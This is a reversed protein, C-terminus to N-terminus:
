PQLGVVEVDTKSFDNGKFLLPEETYKSLAYSFCDGFNLSAPHRGKGYTRFAIRAIEAQEATFAVVEIQAKHMFLDLERGGPEGYRRDIVLSTELLSAASMLRRSAEEVALRLVEAGPENQLMALIASSDIVM